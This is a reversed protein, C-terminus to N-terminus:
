LNNSILIRAVIIGFFLVLPAFDIAGTNPLFQRIWSYIPELLRNLSEWIAAVFQQRPNLVNFMILWSMIVHAVIVFTLIDLLVFIIQALSQM